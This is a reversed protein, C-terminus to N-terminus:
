PNRAGESREPGPIFAISQDDIALCCGLFARSHLEGKGFLLLREGVRHAAEREGLERGIRELARV